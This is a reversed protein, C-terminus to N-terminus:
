NAGLQKSLVGCHSPKSLWSTSPEFGLLGGRTASLKPWYGGLYQWFVMVILMFGFLFGFILNCVWM